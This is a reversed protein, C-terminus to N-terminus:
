IEAECLKYTNYSANQYRPYGTQGNILPEEWETTVFTFAPFHQNLENPSEFLFLFLCFYNSKGEPPPM